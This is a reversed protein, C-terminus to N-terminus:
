SYRRLLTGFAGIAAFFVSLAAVIEGGIYVFARPDDGCSGVGDTQISYNEGEYRVVEGELEDHFIESRVFGSEDEALAQEFAERTEPSLDAFAVTASSDTPNSTFSYGPTCDDAPMVQAVGMLGLGFVLALAAAVYFSNM